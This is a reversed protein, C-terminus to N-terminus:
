EFVEIPVIALEADEKNVTYVVYLKGEHEVAKPYSWQGAGPGKGRGEFRMPHPEGRSIRWIKSFSSAGPDGVAITLAKRLHNGPEEPTCAVLYRQGTSLIGAFPKVGTMPFNTPRAASWTEGYDESFSIMAHTDLSNRLVATIRAGEVFFSVFPFRMGEPHPVGTVTWRTLDGPESLAIRNRGIRRGDVLDKCMGALIWRGNDLLRPKDTAVFRDELVVGRYDWSGAEEGLVYAELKPEAFDWGSHIRTTFLWLRDESVAFAAYERREDGEPEPALTVLDSWTRGEDKSVRGRIHKDPASEEVLASAWAVHLVGEHWEVCAEHLYQSHGEVGRQVLSYTAYPLPPIESLTAPFPVDPDWLPFVDEASALPAALLGLATATALTLAVGFPVLNLKPKPSEPSPPANPTEGVRAGGRPPPPGRL